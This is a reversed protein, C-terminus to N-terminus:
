RIISIIIIPLLYLKKLFHSKEGLRNICADHTKHSLSITREKVVNNIINVLSIAKSRFAGIDRSFGFYAEFATGIPWYQLVEM